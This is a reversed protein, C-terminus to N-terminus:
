RSGKRIKDEFVRIEKCVERWCAETLSDVRLKPAGESLHKVFCELCGVKGDPSEIRSVTLKGCKGCTKSSFDPEVPIVERSPKSGTLQFGCPVPEAEVGEKVDVLPKSIEDAM